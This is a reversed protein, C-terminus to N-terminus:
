VRLLRAMRVHVLGVVHSVEGNTLSLECALHWLYQYCAMQGVCCGSMLMPCRQGRGAQLWPQMAAHIASAHAIRQLALYALLPGVNPKLRLPM